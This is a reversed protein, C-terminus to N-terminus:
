DPRERVIQVGVSRAFRLAGPKELKVKVRQVGPEALCIDAIDQALAEVTFRQSHEVHAIVRKTITRYNVTDEISDSRGAKSLDAFLTLGIVVEQQHEREWENVGIIARVQLDRIVIRDEAM